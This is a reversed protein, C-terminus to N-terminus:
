RVEIQKRTKCDVKRWKRFKTSNTREEYFGEWCTKRNRRRPKDCKREKATKQRPVPLPAPLQITGPPPVPPASPPAIPVGAGAPLFGLAPSPAGALKQAALAALGTGTLALFAVQASTLPGPAPKPLTPAQIPPQPTVVTEPIRTPVGPPEGPSGPPAGPPVRSPPAVPGPQPVQPQTRTPATPPAEPPRTPPVGRRPRPTTRTPPRRRRTPGRGPPFEPRERPDRPKRRRPETRVPPKPKPKPFIKGLGPIRIGALIARRPEGTIEFPARQPLLQRPM